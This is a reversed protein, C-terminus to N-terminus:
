RGTGPPVRPLHHGPIGLAATLASRSERVPDPLATPKAGRRAPRPGPARHLGTPLRDLGATLGQLCNQLPATM